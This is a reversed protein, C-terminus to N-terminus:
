TRESYKWVAMGVNVYSSADMHMDFVSLSIAANCCCTTLNVRVRIHIVYALTNCGVSGPDIM